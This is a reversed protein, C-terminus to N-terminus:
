RNFVENMTEEDINEFSLRPDMYHRTRFIKGNKINCVSIQPTRYIKGTKPDPYSEIFEVIVTQTEEDAVVTKFEYERGEIKFALNMLNDLEEGTLSPFHNGDKGLTMETVTFDETIYERGAVIDNNREAMFSNLVLQKLEDNTLFNNSM